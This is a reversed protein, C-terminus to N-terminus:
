NVEFIVFPESRRQKASMRGAKASSTSTDEGLVIPKDDGLFIINEQGDQTGEEGQSGGSLTRM